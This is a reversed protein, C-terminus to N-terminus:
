TGFQIEVVQYRLTGMPVQIEAIDGKKKGVLGKGIPSSTLIKNQSFDEKGPGVLVFTEEEDLDLDKVRVSAGFAVADKAVHNMDIIDARALENKLHDIKAQLMGQDERAAHYEANESLDGMDRAAAVRKTIEIMQVSQMHDIKAKLGDYEDRTMPIREDSM